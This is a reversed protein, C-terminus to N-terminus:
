HACLRPRSRDRRHLLPCAALTLLILSSGEPVANHSVSSGVGNGLTTGFNARWKDFGLQSGDNKRWVVYDAADVTGDRNFDGSILSLASADLLFARTDAAVGGPGDPDYAGVGTIWGTNSLGRAETLTWKADEATNGHDLWGDLDIMQGGARPTGTYLFAHYATSGTTQSRGAVQGADNVAYGFSWTGGLTGLDRMVGDSGPTGDYRFAHIASDGPLDSSGAVQGADNIASGSSRVGGLTGLDHMVGGSGPTGDYRFAHYGQNSDINIYSYGTVQGADNIGRAESVAEGGLSGLNYIVGDTNPTGDYRFAQYLPGFEWNPPESYGAVQGANNIAQGYSNQGALTGLERMVGGSGPAGEYRFARIATDGTIWSYGAVQGANNISYAESEIGGLTGLDRMVGGAGPTRDYLFAHRGTNGSTYTYGAVQGADNVAYGYSSNGGLTGLEYIAPMAAPATAPTSAGTVSLLVAFLVFVNSRM